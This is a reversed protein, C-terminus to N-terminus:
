GERKYMATFYNETGAFIRTTKWTIATVTNIKGMPYRTLDIVSVGPWLHCGGM